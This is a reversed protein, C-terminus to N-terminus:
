CSCSFYAPKRGLIPRGLVIEAHDWFEDPIKGHADINDFHMYDDDFNSGSQGDAILAVRGMIVEYNPCDSTHCFDRLWKESALKSAPPTYTTAVDEFAPNSWRHSLATITRPNLFVWFREGPMVVGSLFPDVIGVSEGVPSVVTDDGTTVVAVGQGPYVKTESTASFVAVHM